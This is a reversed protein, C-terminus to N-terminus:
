KNCELAKHEGFCRACIHKMTCDKRQCGSANNYPFCIMSGSSDRSKWKSRRAGKRDNQKGGSAKGSKDGSKGGGKPHKIPPKQINEEQQRKNSSSGSSSASQTQMLLCRINPECLIAAMKVDIETEGSPDMEIGNRCEEALRKFIARDARALQEFSVACYGHLAPELWANMLLNTICEHTEFKCWRAMEAALGRRTLAMKWKLDSSLQITAPTISTTQRIVGSADPSWVKLDPSKKQGEVEQARKTCASWEIYRIQGDDVQQAFADILHFSPETEENFTMGVLRTKLATWRIAREQIPMVKPRDEETRDVRKKLEAAVLTYAEYFLRRLIPAKPHDATNLVKKIVGKVFPAEDASGPQFSSSFALTAYTDFGAVELAGIETPSLGVAKCRNAFVAKSDTAAM